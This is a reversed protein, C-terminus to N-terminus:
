NITADGGVKGITKNSDGTVNQVVNENGTITQHYANVVKSIVESDESMLGAIEAALAKDEDLLKKLQKQLIDLADADNPSNALEEAAGKAMPKTEVKPQLKAWIAKAKTWVDEGLKQSAGEVAKNGVSMLFPLCPTLFKVLIAIDM